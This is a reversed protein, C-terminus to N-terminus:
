FISALEAKLHSIFEINEIPTRKELPYALVASMIASITMPKVVIDDCRGNDIKPKKETFKLGDKWENFKELLSDYDDCEIDIALDIQSDTVPTFSNYVPVFKDVSKLPFGVFAFTNDGDKTSKKTVALPKRDNTTKRVDDTYTYTVILWASWNYARYFGGEKFLHIINIANKEKRNEEIDLIETIKAM